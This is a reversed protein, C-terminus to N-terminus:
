SMNARCSATIDRMRRATVVGFGAIFDLRATKNSFLGSNFIDYGSSWNTDAESEILAEMGQRIGREIFMLQNRTKCMSRVEQLIQCLTIEWRADMNKVLPGQSILMVAACGTVVGIGTWSEAGSNVANRKGCRESGL